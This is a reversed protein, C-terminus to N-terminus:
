QKAKQKEQWLKLREDATLIRGDAQVYPKNILLWNEFRKCQYRYYDLTRQEKMERKSLRKIHEKTKETGSSMMLEEEEPKEKGKWFAAYDREAAYYNANSDNMMKIWLPTNKIGGKATSQGYSHGSM